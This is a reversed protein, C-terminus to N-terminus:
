GLREKLFGDIVPKLKQHLGALQPAKQQVTKEILASALWDIRGRKDVVKALNAKPLGNTVREAISELVTM